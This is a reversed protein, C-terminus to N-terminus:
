ATSQRPLRDPATRRPRHMDADHAAAWGSGRRTSVLGHHNDGVQRPRGHNLTAVPRDAPAAASRDPRPPTLNSQTRSLAAPEPPRPRSELQARSARCLVAEDAAWWGHSSQPPSSRSTSTLSARRGTWPTGIWGCPVTEGCANRKKIQTNRVSQHEKVRPSCSAYSLKRAPKRIKVSKCVKHL